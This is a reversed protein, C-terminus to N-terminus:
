GKSLQGVQTIYNEILDAQAADDLSAAVVEETANRTIGAVEAQLDAMAQRKMNEVDAGAREVLAAADAEAKAKLDVKLQSATETAEARIRAEEASVDPLDSTSASLAAEAEARQAQADALEARIRETRSNFMKKIAPGGKWIILGILVFFAISGWIVENTDGALHVGNEHHVGGEAAFIALLM